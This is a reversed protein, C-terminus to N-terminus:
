EVVPNTFGAAMAVGIDDGKSTMIVPDSVLAGVIAEDDILVGDRYLTLLRDVVGLRLHQRDPDGAWRPVDSLSVEELGDTSLLVGSLRSSHFTRTRMAEAWNQGSLTSTVNDYPSNVRGQDLVLTFISEGGPEADHVTVAFGDGISCFWAFPPRVLALQLTTDFADIHAGSVTLTAIWEDRVEAILEVWDIPGGRSDAVLLKEVAIRVATRSGVGSWRASGLGDATALVAGGGPLSVAAAWDQSPSNPQKASGAITLRAVRM